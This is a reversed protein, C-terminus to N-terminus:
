VAAQNAPFGALVSAMESLCSTLTLHNALAAFEAQRSTHTKTFIAKLQERVTSISVECAEAIESLSAGCALRAALRAEAPTLGFMQRFMEASPRLTENLDVLALAAESHQSDTDPRLVLQAIVPRKTVNPLVVPTTLGEFCVPGGLLQRLARTAWSSDRPHQVSSHRELCREAVANFRLVNGSRDLLLGGCGVRDLADLLTAGLSM